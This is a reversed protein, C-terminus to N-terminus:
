HSPTKTMNAQINILGYSNSVLEKIENKDVNTITKNKSITFNIIRYRKM